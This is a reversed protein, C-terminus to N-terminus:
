RVFISPIPPQRSICPNNWELRQRRSGQLTSGIRDSLWSSTHPFICISPYCCFTLLLPFACSGCFLAPKVTHTITLVYLRIIDRTGDACFVGYSRNDNWTCYSHGNMFSFSQTWGGISGRTDQWLDRLADCQTPDDGAGCTCGSVDGIATCTEQVDCPLPCNWINGRNGGILCDTLNGLSLLDCFSDPISCNFKNDFLHLGGGNSGLKTLKSFNPICGTLDNNQLYRHNTCLLQDCPLCACSLLM